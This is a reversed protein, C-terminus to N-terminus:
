RGAPGRASLKRTSSRRGRVRLRLRHLRLLCDRPTARSEPIQDPRQLSPRQQHMRKDGCTYIFAWSGWGLRHGRTTCGMRCWLMSVLMCARVYGSLLLLKVQVLCPMQRLLPPLLTPLPPPQPPPHKNAMRFRPSDKSTSASSALMSTSSASGCASTVMTDNRSALLSCALILGWVLWQRTCFSALVLM